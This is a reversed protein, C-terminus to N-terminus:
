DTPSGRCPVTGRGDCHGRFPAGHLRRGLVIHVQVSEIVRVAVLVDLAVNALEEAQQVVILDVVQDDHIRRRERVALIQVNPVHLFVVDFQEVRQNRVHRRPAHDVERGVVAPEFQLFAFQPADRYPFDGRPCYGLVEPVLLDVAAPPQDHLLFRRLSARVFPCLSGRQPPSSGPCCKCSMPPLPVPTTSSPCQPLIAWPISPLQQTTAPSLAPPLAPVSQTLVM